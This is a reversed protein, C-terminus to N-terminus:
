CIFTVTNDNATPTGNDDFEYCAPDCYDDSSCPNEDGQGVPCGQGCIAECQAGLGSGVSTCTPKCGEHTADVLSHVCTVAPSAGDAARAATAVVTQIAPAAFVTIGGTAAARKIFSRRDIGPKESNEM